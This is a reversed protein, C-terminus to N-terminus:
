KVLLGIVLAVIVIAEAIAVWALLSRTSRTHAHMGNQRAQNVSAKLFAQEVETLSSDPIEKRLHAMPLEEAQLLFARQRDSANWTYAAAQWPELNDRRWTDNSTLVPAILRDHTLEYWTSSGRVDGRILYGDELLSLVKQPDATKPPNLTQSRFIQKTILEYEFWDRITREDASTGAVVNAVTEGFYLTLAKDIDAHKEVDTVEITTFDDGRDKRISKWLLRCVVQLQFPEVYPTSIVELQRGPRQVQVVALRDALAEAAESKFDVRQRMAPVQMALMADARSLFDLRYRSRLCGPLFRLYRDLGGMYDERISLLAWVPETKLLTGLERFFAEKADWDAPNLTLVEELQDIVLVTRANGPQALEEWRMVAEKLTQDGPQEGAEYGSLLYTVLSYIYRNGVISEDVPQNVRLRPTSCFGEKALESVVAAEILSTKGGGSPSHLLVVREAVVRNTLEYAERQRNPLQDKRSFERPGRYPNKRRETGQTAAAPIM